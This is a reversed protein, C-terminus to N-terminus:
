FHFFNLNKGDKANYYTVYGFGRSKKQNYVDRMIRVSYIPGFKIFYQYLMGENLQDDIDGIYLTANLTKMAMAQSDMLHPAPFPYPAQFNM